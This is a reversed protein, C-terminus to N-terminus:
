GWKFGLMGRGGPVAKGAQRQGATDEQTAARDLIPMRAGRRTSDWSPDQQGPSQSSSLCVCRPGRQEEATGEFASAGSSCLPFVSVRSIREQLNSFITLPMYRPSSTRSIRTFIALSPRKNSPRMVGSSSVLPFNLVLSMDAMSFYTGEPAHFPLCPGTLRKLSFLPLPNRIEMCWAEQAWRGQGESSCELQDGQGYRRTMLFLGPSQLTPRAHETGLVCM